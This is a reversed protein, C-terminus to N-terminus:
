YGGAVLADGIITSLDSKEPNWALEIQARTSNCVLSQPGSGPPRHVIQITRGTLKEAATVIDLVSYGLGSGINYRRTCGRETASIAAVFAKATDEVHMYDRVVSGDGSVELNASGVAAAIARPIMRTSDPDLGGAVNLLRLIVAGLRGAMTQAEIALEAALKSSAYPNTSRDPTDEQVPECPTSDYITATSAFVIREVGASDMAELLLITGLVNSHFYRAPESFSEQSRRLGGLHFVADVRRAARNLSERDLLDGTTTEFGSLVNSRGSRVLGVPSHGALRLAAMVYRGIYGSSGTVLVRM